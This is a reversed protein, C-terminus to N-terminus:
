QSCDDESAYFVKYNTEAEKLSKALCDGYALADADKWYADYANSLVNVAAIIMFKM